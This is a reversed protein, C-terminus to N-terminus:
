LGAEILLEKIFTTCKFTLYINLLTLLTCRMSYKKSSCSDANTAYFYCSTLRMDQEIAASGTREILGCLFFFPVVLRVRSILLIHRSADSHSQGTFDLYGGFM